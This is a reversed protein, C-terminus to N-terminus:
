AAVALGPIGCACVTPPTYATGDNQLRNRLVPCELYGYQQFDSSLFDNSIM